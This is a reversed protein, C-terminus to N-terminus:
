GRPDTNNDQKANLFIDGGIASGNPPYTYAYQPTTSLLFRIDGYKVPSDEVEVFNRGILPAITDNFIRRVNNKVADSVTALGDETGYYKGGAYFSYTITNNGWTDGSLLANNISQNTILTM